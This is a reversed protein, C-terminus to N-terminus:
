TPLFCREPPAQRRLHPETSRCESLPTRSVSKGVIFYGLRNVFYFGSLVYLTNEDGEVLTWVRDAPTDCFHALERGFTEFMLEDFPASDTLPITVPQYIKLWDDYTM